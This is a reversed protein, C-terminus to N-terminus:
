PIYGFLIWWPNDQLDKVCNLFAAKRFPGERMAAPKAREKLLKEMVAATDEEWIPSFLGSKMNATLQTVGNPFDEFDRAM